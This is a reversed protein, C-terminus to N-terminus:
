LFSGQSRVLEKEFIVEIHEEGKKEVFGIKSKRKSFDYLFIDKCGIIEEM